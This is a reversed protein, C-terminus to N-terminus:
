LLTGLTYEKLALQPFGQTFLTLTYVSDKQNLAPPRKSRGQTLLRTIQNDQLVIAPL